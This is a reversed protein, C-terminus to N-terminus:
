YQRDFFLEFGDENDQEDIGRVIKISLQGSQTLMYRMHGPTHENIGEFLATDNEVSVLRFEMPGTGKADEWATYDSNYHKFRFIIGDDSEEIIFFESFTTKGDKVHRFAGLMTGSDPSFWAEEGVGGFVDGSWHGAFFALQDISLESSTSPQARTTSVILMTTLTLVATLCITARKM